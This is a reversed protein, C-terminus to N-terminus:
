KGGGIATVKARKGKLTDDECDSIEVGAPSNPSRARGVEAAYDICLAALGDHDSDASISVLRKNEPLLLSLLEDPLVGCLKVFAPLSMACQGDAYTRLTSDPIGSDCGIVKLTLGYRLPDCAVRFVRRQLDLMRLIEPDTALINHGKQALNRQM